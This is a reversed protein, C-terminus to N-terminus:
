KNIYTIEKYQIAEEKKRRIRSQLNPIFEFKSVM